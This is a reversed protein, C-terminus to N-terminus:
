SKMWDPVLKEAEAMEATTIPSWSCREHWYELLRPYAERAEDSGQKYYEGGHDAGHLWGEQHAIELHRRLIGEILGLEENSLGAYDEGMEYADRLARLQDGWETGEYALWKEYVDALFGHAVDTM